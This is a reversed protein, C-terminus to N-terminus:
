PRGGAFAKNVAEGVLSEASPYVGRGIRREVEAALVTAARRPLRVMVPKTTKALDAERAIQVRMNEADADAAAVKDAM